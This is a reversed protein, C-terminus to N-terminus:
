IPKVKCLNYLPYAAVNYITSVTIYSRLMRFITVAARTPMTFHPFDELMVSCYIPLSAPIKIIGM